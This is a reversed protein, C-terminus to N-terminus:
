AFMAFSSADSAERCAALAIITSATRVGIPRASFPESM